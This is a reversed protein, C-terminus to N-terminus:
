RIVKQNFDQELPLEDQSIVEELGQLRTVLELAMERTDDNVSGALRVMEAQLALQTMIEEIQTLERTFDARMRKLRGIMQLRQEVMQASEEDGRQRLELQRERAGRESYADRELLREIEHAREHAMKMRTMLRKSTQMDPLLAALPAGGARRLADLADEGSGSAWSRPASDQDAADQNPHSPEARMLVFPGFLPWCLALLLVDLLNTEQQRRQWMALAVGAGLGIIVYFIMLQPLRM